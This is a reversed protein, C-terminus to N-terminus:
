LSSCLEKVPTVSFEETSNDEHSIILVYNEKSYEDIFSKLASISKQDLNAFPEDLILIKPRMCLTRLLAIKRRQGGSINKGREEIIDELRIDEQIFSTFGCEEITKLLCEKNIKRGSYINELFTSSFLDADQPLVGVVQQMDEDSYECPCKGFLQVSQDSPLIGTLLDVFTTKGTGNKGAIRYLGPHTLSLSFDEFLTGGNYGFTLNKIHIGRTFDSKLSTDESPNELANIASLRENNVQFIKYHYRVQSLAMAPQYVKQIYSMVAVFAGMTLTGDIIWISGLFLLLFPPAFYIFQQINSWLCQFKFNRIEANYKLDLSSNIRTLAYSFFRGYQITKRKGLSEELSSYLGSEKERLAKNYIRSKRAHIESTIVVFPLISLIILLLRFDLSMLIAVTFGLQAINTVFRISVKTLFTTADRTDNNLRSLIDGTTFRTAELKRSMLFKGALLSIMSNQIRNFYKASLFTELFKLLQISIFIGLYLLAMRPLLSIERAPILEDIVKKTILPPVLALGTAAIMFLYSFIISVLNKKILKSYIKKM